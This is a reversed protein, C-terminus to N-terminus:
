IKHRVSPETHLPSWVGRVSENISEVKNNRKRLTEGSSERLLNIKNEVNDINLNRVCIAKESGNIFEGKVVPHGAKQIVTFEIKSHATAYNNLRLKLFNRLGESSGGAKDVQLVIRKCNLIFAGVGNQFKPIQSIPKIPM